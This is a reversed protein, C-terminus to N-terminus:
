DRKSMRGAQRELAVGIEEGFIKVAKAENAVYAPELFPKAEAGPHMQGRNPQWHPETGFEVLHAEGIARGTAAVVNIVQNRRKDKLRIVMGRYLDGTIYSGNSKLNSKADRLIPALAKRSAENMPRQMLQAMSRLNRSLGKFGSAKSAM